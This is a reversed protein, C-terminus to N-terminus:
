RKQHLIRLGGCSLDSEDYHQYRKSVRMDLIDEAYNKEDVLVLGAENFMNLWDSRQIRNIYQADNEFWLKWTRDSYRLYQKASTSRDYASLHDRLNISHLSYGGPKLM